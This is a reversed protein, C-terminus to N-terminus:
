KRWWANENGIKINFSFVISLQITVLYCLIGWSVGPYGWSVGLTCWSVGLIGGPHVPLRTASPFNLPVAHGRDEDDDAGGDHAAPTGLDQDQDHNSEDEDEDEDEDENDEDGDVDEDAETKPSKPQMRATARQRCGELEFINKNKHQDKYEAESEGRHM